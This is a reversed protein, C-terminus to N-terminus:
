WEDDGYFRPAVSATQDRVLAIEGPTLRTRWSMVNAESNRKLQHAQGSKAEAPNGPDSHEELYSRARAEFPVGLRLCLREFEARPNLSLDEHRVFEWEPHEDRYLSVVHNLASWLLAAQEVVPREHRAFDEIQDAFPALPGELLGPQRFDAFPHTWGMRKLSSAFAAPHRILVVVHTDFNRALWPAALLAIPDKLVPRAHATRLSRCASIDRAMRGVDRPTRIAPLEDRVSYRYALMRRVAPELTGDEDSRVYPFWQPFRASLIGPRHLPSFPESIYGIGPAAALVRGVWTTGSRHSGTVLIPSSAAPATRTGSSVGVRNLGM